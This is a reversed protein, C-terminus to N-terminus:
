DTVNQGKVSGLTIALPADPDGKIDIQQKAKGDIRDGIEKIAQVDGDMAKDVLAQAIAMKIQEGDNNKQELAKRVLGSWTWEKKPRGGPNGSKGKKFPM